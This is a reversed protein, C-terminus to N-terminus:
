TCCMLEGTATNCHHCIATVPAASMLLLQLAFEAFAVCCPLELACRHFLLAAAGGSVKDDGAVQFFTDLLNIIIVVERLTLLEFCNVALLPPSVVIHQLLNALEM